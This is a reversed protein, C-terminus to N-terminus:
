THTEDNERRNWAEVAKGESEISTIQAGCTFDSPTNGCYVAWATVGDITYSGALKAKRGCFPCPKLDLTM